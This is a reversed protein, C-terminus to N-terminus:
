FPKNAQQHRLFDLEDDELEEDSFLLDSSDLSATFGTPDSRLRIGRVMMADVVEILEANTFSPRM